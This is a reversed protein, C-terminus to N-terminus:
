FGGGESGGEGDGGGSEGSGQAPAAGGGAGGEPTEDDRSQKVQQVYIKIRDTSDQDPSGSSALADEAQLAYSKAETKFKDRSFMILSKLEAVLNEELHNQPEVVSLMKALDGALKSSEYYGLACWDVGPIECPALLNAKVREYDKALNQMGSKLDKMNMLQRARLSNIEFRGATFRAKAQLKFGDATVPKTSIAAKAAKNAFDEKGVNKYLNMLNFNVNIVEDPDKVIKSMREFASLAAVTNNGKQALEAIVRLISKQEGFSKLLKLHKEYNALAEPIKNADRYSDAAQLYVKRPLLEQPYLQAFMQYHEAAKVFMKSNKALSAAAWRIEKAQPLRQYIKLYLDYAQLSFDIKKAQAFGTAAKELAVAANASGPFERQFAVFRNAAQEFQQGALLQSSNEFVAQELLKNLSRYPERSPVIGSKIMLRVFKEVEAMKKNKTLSELLVSASDAALPHKPARTFAEEYRPFSAARNTGLLQVFAALYYLHESQGAPLMNRLKDANALYGQVFAPSGSIKQGSAIRIESGLGMAFSRARLNYQLAAVVNARKKYKVLGSESRRGVENFNQTQNLIELMQADYDERAAYSPFGRVFSDHMIAIRSALDKDPKVKFQSMVVNMSHTMQSELNIKAQIGRSTVREWAIQIMKSNNSAITLDLMRGEVKNKADETTQGTSLTDGYAKLAAALNTPYVKLAYEELYARAYDPLDNNVLTQYIEQNVAPFARVGINILYYAAAQLIIGPTREKDEKRINKCTAIVDQLLPIAAPLKAKVIEQEAQLLKFTAGEYQDTSGQLVQEITGFPSPLRGQGADLALGVSALEHQEAGQLTKLMNIAEDRVSPDGLKLRAVALKFRWQKNNPHKPYYLILTQYRKAQQRRINKLTTTLDKYKPDMIGVVRMWEFVMGQEEYLRLIGLTANLAADSRLPAKKLDDTLKKIQQLRLATGAAKYDLNELIQRDRGTLDSPTPFRKFQPGKFIPDVNLVWPKPPVVPAAPAEAAPSAPAEAAPTQTANKKPPAESEAGEAPAASAAPAATPLEQEGQGEGEAPAAPAEKTEGEAAIPEEQAFAMRNSSPDFALLALGFISALMKSKQATKRV